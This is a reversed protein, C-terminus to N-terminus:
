FQEEGVTQKQSKKDDFESQLKEFRRNEIISSRIYHAIILIMIALLLGFPVFVLPNEFIM